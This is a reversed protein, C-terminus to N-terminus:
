AALAAQLYFLFRATFDAAVRSSLDIAFAILRDSQGIFAWGFDVLVSREGALAARIVGAPTHPASPLDARVLGMLALWLVVVLLLMRLRHRWALRLSGELFFRVTQLTKLM